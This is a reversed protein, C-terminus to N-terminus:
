LIRAGNAKSEAVQMSQTYKGQAMSANVKEDIMVTLGRTDMKSSVKASSNNIIQVPMVVSAGGGMGGKNLANFMNQQQRQNLIMEGSNVRATVNDGSYSTGPVIGGHEFKKVPKAAIVNALAAAGNVAAIAAYVPKTVAPITSDGWVSSVAMAANATAQSVQLAWSIMDLKYKKEAAEEELEAKKKLYEEESMLGKNYQNELRQIDAEAGKGVAESAMDFTSIFASNVAQGLDIFANVLEKTEDIAEETLLPLNALGENIDQLVNKGDIYINKYDKFNKQLEMFAEVKTNLIEQEEAEKSIEEGLSRRVQIEREKDRITATYADKASQALSNASELAKKKELEENQKKLEKNHEKEAETLKRKAEIYLSNENRAQRILENGEEQEVWGEKIAQQMEKISKVNFSIVADYDSATANGQVIRQMGEKYANKAGLEGGMTNIIEILKKHFPNLGSNLAKGVQEKLDGWANALQESAGVSDAIKAAMGDYATQVARVAGGQQLEEKTLNKLSPLVRGLAGVNGEYSQNLSRVATDLDVAGSASADLAAKMIDQIETQTRGSAALNAMMPILQEDGITSINQLESAYSKLSQVSNSDLYPNNKAATELQIEAKAQVKYSNTLDKVADTVKKIALATGALPLAAKAIKGLASDIKKIGGSLGSTDIKTGININGDEKAM